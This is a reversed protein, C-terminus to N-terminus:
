TRSKTRKIDRNSKAAVKSNTTPVGDHVVLRQEPKQPRKRARRPLGLNYFRGLLHHMEENHARIADIDIRDIYRLHVKSKDTQSFYTFNPVGNIFLTVDDRIVKNHALHNRFPLLRIIDRKIPEWKTYWNAHVSVRMLEDAAEMRPRITGLKQFLFASKQRDTVLAFHFLEYIGSEIDAWQAIARGLQSYFAAANSGPPLTREEPDIIMHLDIALSDCLTCRRNEVSYLNHSWADLRLSTRGQPGGALM